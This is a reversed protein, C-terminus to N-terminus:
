CRTDISLSRAAVPDYGRGIQELEAPTPRENM